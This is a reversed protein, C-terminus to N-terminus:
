DEKKTEEDEPITMSEVVENACCQIFAQEFVSLNVSLELIKLLYDMRKTQLAASMQNVQQHMKQIYTNMQQNQQSLDMCIKNLEDYSLKQKNETNTGKDVNMNVVKNGKKKEEM